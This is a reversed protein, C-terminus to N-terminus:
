KENITLNLAKSIERLRVKMITIRLELKECMERLEEKTQKM